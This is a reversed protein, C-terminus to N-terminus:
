SPNPAPLADLDPIWSGAEKMREVLPVQPRLHRTLCCWHVAGYKLNARVMEYLPGIQTYPLAEADATGWWFVDSCIVSLMVMGEDDVHVLLRGDVLLLALADAEGDEEFPPWSRHEMTM